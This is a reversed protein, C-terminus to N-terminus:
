RVTTFSWELRTPAGDITGTLTVVYTSDAALPQAPVIYLSNHMLPANPDDADQPLQTHEEQPIGDLSLNAVVDSGVVVNSPFTASLIYGTPASFPTNELPDPREDGGFSRPVQTQGDAPFFVVDALVASEVGRIIDLCAYGNSVAAGVQRLGPHLMPFRHYPGSAWTEVAEIMHAQGSAVNSALGSAAGAESYEPRGEEQEHTLENNAVMYAVHAACAESLTPDITVPQLGVADRYFNVAAIADVQADGTVEPLVATPDTTDPPTDDDLLGCALLSTSLAAALSLTFMPRTFKKMM